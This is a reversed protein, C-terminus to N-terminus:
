GPQSKKLVSTFAPMVEDAFLQMDEAMVQVSESVFSIAPFHAVGAESLGSIREGIVEPTGVLNVEELRGLDQGRLTSDRLTKLHVYYQSSRFRRLAEEQTRAICCMFQPAIDLTSSDRGAKEAQEVLEKRGSRIRELPIAAPMWGQASRAVRRIVNPNNGGVYIPFPDQLPKPYLEIDRFAYYEGEYTTKRKAFLLGLAELAEDMMKGRDADKQRPNVAVFEERYAGSGVAIITRGRSVHDLTAIQKALSLPNRLPLVLVATGLRVRKTIKAVAALVILPEYFRPPDVHDHRVYAPPTIHDNGWISDFGLREALLALKFIEEVDCFPLPLSLGEKCTPLSVGFRM